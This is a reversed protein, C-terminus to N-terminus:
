EYNYQLLLLSKLDANHMPSVSVINHQRRLSGVQRKFVKKADM